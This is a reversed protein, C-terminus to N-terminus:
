IDNKIIFLTHHNFEIIPFPGVTRPKLTRYTKTAADDADRFSFATLLLKDIYLLQKKESSLTRKVDKDHVRKFQSKPYRSDKIKM